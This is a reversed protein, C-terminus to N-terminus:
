GGPDYEQLGWSCVSKKANKESFDVLSETATSAVANEKAPFTTPIKESDESASHPTACVPPVGVDCSFVTIKKAIKPRKEQPPPFACIGPLSATPGLAPSDDVEHSPSLSKEMKRTEGRTTPTAPSDEGAVLAKSLPAALDEAGQSPRQVEGGISTPPTNTSSEVLAGGPEELPWGMIYRIVKAPIRYTEKGQLKRLGPLPTRGLRERHGRVGDERVAVAPCTKPDCIVNKLMGLCKSGWIRTPKRYGWDSFCCYDVDVYALGKMYPRKPLLGTRPNELFWMNPQLYDIIELGRLVLSDAYDLDRARRTMAQSFETCPPSCAIVDFHGPSFDKWYEWTLMDVQITPAFTPDIDVTVIEYGRAQFVEAVSGYGSYLDLLRLTPKPAQSKESQAISHLLNGGGSICIGAAVSQSSEGPGDGLVGKGSDLGAPYIVPVQNASETLPPVDSPQAGPGGPSPSEEQLPSISEVIPDPPSSLHNSTGVSAPLSPDVISSHTPHPATRMLIYGGPPLAMTCEGKGIEADELSVPMAPLAGVGSEQLDEDGIPHSDSSPPAIVLPDPDARVGAVWIMGRGKHDTLFVGHRSPNVILQADSLWQYSLIADVKGLDAVLFTTPIKLGCGRKTDVEVGALCLVVRAEKDGGVISQQNAATLRWPRELIVLDEDPIIGCRIVNVEAGTDVLARVVYVVGQLEIECDLLLRREKRRGEPSFDAEGVYAWYTCM